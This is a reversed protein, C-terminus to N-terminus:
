PVHNDIKHKHKIEATIVIPNNLPSICSFDIESYHSVCRKSFNAATISSIQLVHLALPKFIKNHANMIKEIVNIIRKIIFFTLLNFIPFM